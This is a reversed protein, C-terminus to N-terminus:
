NLNKAIRICILFNDGRRAASSLTSGGSRWYNNYPQFGYRAELAIQENQKTVMGLIGGADVTANYMTYRFQANENLVGKKDYDTIFVRNMSLSTGIYPILFGNSSKILDKGMHFSYNYTRNQLSAYLHDNNSFTFGFESAVYVRRSGLFNFGLALHLQRMSEDSYSKDFDEFYNHKWSRYGFLTTLGIFEPEDSTDGDSDSEDKIQVLGDTIWKNVIVASFRQRLRDNSDLVDTFFLRAENSNTLKKFKTLNGSELNEIPRNHGSYFIGINYVSQPYKYEMRNVLNFFYGYDCDRNDSTFMTHCRGYQGFIRAKPNERLIEDLRDFMIQERYVMNYPTGSDELDEWRMWAEMETVVRDAMEYQSGYLNKMAVKQRRFELVMQKVMNYQNFTRQYMADILNFEHNFQRKYSSVLASDPSWEFYYTNKLKMKARLEFDNYFSVVTKLSHYYFLLSDEISRDTPILCLLAHYFMPVNREIDVGKVMFKHEEGLGLYYSRHEELQQLYGYHFTRYLVNKANTDGFRVYQDYFWGTVFGSERVLVQYGHNQNLYKFLHNEIKRNSTMYRHDEGTIILRKNSAISDLWKLDKFESTTDGLNLRVSRDSNSVNSSIPNRQRQSYGNVACICVLYLILAFRKQYLSNLIM